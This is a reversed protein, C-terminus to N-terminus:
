SKKNITNDLNKGLNIIIKETNHTTDEIDESNIYDRRPESNEEKCTEANKELISKEMFYISIKFFIYIIISVVIVIPIIKTHGSTALFFCVIPLFIGIILIFTMLNNSIESKYNKNAIYGLIKQIIANEVIESDTYGGNKVRQKQEKMLRNTKQQEEILKQQQDWRRDAANAEFPDSYRNGDKSQYPRFQEM